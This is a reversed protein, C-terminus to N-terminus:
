RQSRVTRVEGLLTVVLPSASLGCLLPALSLSYLPPLSPLPRRVVACQVRRRRAAVDLDLGSRWVLTQTQSRLTKACPSRQRRRRESDREVGSGKSKNGPGLGTSMQRGRGLPATVRHRNGSGFLRADRSSSNSRRRTTHTKM